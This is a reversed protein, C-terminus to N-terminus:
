RSSTPAVFCDNSGKLSSNYNLKAEQKKEGELAKNSTGMNVIRKIAKQMKKSNKAKTHM